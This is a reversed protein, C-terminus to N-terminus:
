AMLEVGQLEGLVSSNRLHQNFVAEFNLPRLSGLLTSLQEKWKSVLCNGEWFRM